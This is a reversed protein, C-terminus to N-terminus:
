WFGASRRPRPRYWCSGRHRFDEARHRSGQSHPHLHVRARHRAVAMGGVSGALGVLQTRERMATIFYGTVLGAAISVSMALVILLAGMRPRVGIKAESFNADVLSARSLDAGRLDAGSFNAGDLTMDCFSQGSLDAGQYDMDTTM